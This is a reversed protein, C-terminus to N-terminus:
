NYPSSGPFIKEKMQIYASKLDNLCNMCLCDTYHEEIFIREDLSLLITNCQCHAIDDIKCEFSQNCRPCIKQENLSM